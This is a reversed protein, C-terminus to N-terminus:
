VVKELEQVSWVVEGPKLVFDIPESLEFDFRDTLISAEFAGDATQSPYVVFRRGTVLDSAVLSCHPHKELIDAAESLTVGEAIVAKCQIM